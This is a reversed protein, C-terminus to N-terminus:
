RGGRGLHRVRWRSQWSYLPRGQSLLLRVLAQSYRHSLKATTCSQDRDALRRARWFGREIRCLLQMTNNARIHSLREIHPVDNRADHVATPEPLELLLVPRCNDRYSKVLISNSPSVKATDPLSERVDVAIFNPDDCIVADQERRRRELRGM